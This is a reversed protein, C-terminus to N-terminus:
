FGEKLWNVKETKKRGAKKIIRLLEATTLGSINEGRLTGYQVRGNRLIAGELSPGGDGAIGTPPWFIIRENQLPEEEEDKQLYTLIAAAASLGHLLVLCPFLIWEM